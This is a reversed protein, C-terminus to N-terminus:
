QLFCRHLFILHSGSSVPLDTLNYYPDSWQTSSSLLSPQASLPKSQLITLNECPWHPTRLGIKGMLYLQECSGVDRLFLDGYCAQQAWPFCPRLLSLAKLACSPGDTLQAGFPLDLLCTKLAVVLNILILDQLSGVRSNEITHKYKKKEM